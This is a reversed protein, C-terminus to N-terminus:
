GISAMINMLPLMTSLLIIGVLVSSVLVMAPEVRAATEELSARAEKMMRRAVEELVRDANGGRIGVAVMRTAWAPLLQGAQLADSLTGEEELAERCIKARKAAGPAHQLLKEALVAADTLPLGSSIGMSLGRAFRANNFKRSIGRDGFQKQWIALAKERAPAWLCVALVLAAVLLLVALLVPLMRSLGQGLYLLGASIGTLRSGLSAYVGDFVPLVKVLLVGIVVLMMLLIMCPYVLANKLQRVTRDNETYYDALSQLTQELHGTKEGIATLAAAYGPFGGCKEMAASLTSGGDLRQGLGTLIEKLNGEAEQQLLWASDALGLGSHLLLAFGGCVEATQGQTLQIKKM